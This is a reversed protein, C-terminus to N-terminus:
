VFIVRRQFLEDPEVANREDPTRWEEEAQTEQDTIPFV